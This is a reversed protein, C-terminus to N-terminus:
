RFFPILVAYLAPLIAQIALIVHHIQTTRVGFLAGILTRLSTMLVQYWVKVNQSVIAPEVQYMTNEDLRVNMLFAAAPAIAQDALKDRLDAQHEALATLEIEMSDDDDNWREGDSDSLAPIDATNEMEDHYLACLADNLCQRNKDTSTCRSVEERVQDISALLKAFESKLFEEIKYEITDSNNFIRETEM